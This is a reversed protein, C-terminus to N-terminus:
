EWNSKILKIKVHQLAKQLNIQALVIIELAYSLDDLM